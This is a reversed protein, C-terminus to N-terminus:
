LKADTVIVSIASRSSYWFDTTENVEFKRTAHVRGLLHVLDAENVLDRFVQRQIDPSDIASIQRFIFPFM